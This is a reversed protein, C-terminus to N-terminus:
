GPIDEPRIRGDHLATAVLVAAVGCRRLRQVDALDRVGGGATLYVDPYAAALRACLADTGTGGREGVRALDLVLLHRVGLALAQEAISWADPRQWASLDGLPVGQKLDLSFVVREAGLRGVTERLVTPGAVTELGVVIREVGAAALAAAAAAERVGADVWLRLGDARLGAYTDLAPSAGALADLDAVYLETFGFRERFARAVDLPRSSPCLPSVLPRYEQRRGGVGRVVHGAQLDLVPIIRM